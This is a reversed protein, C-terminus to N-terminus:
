NIESMFARLEKAQRLSRCVYVGQRERGPLLQGLTASNGFFFFSPPTPHPFYCNKKM